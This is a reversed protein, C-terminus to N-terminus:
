LRLRRKAEECIRLVTRDVCEGHPQRITVVSENKAIEVSTNYRREHPQTDNHYRVDLIEREKWRATYVARDPLLLVPVVGPPARELFNELCAGFVVPMDRGAAVNTMRELVDFNGCDRKAGPPRPHCTWRDECDLAQFGYTQFRTTTTTKGAGPPGAIWLAFTARQLPACARSVSVHMNGLKPYPVQTPPHPSLRDIEAWFPDPACLDDGAARAAAAALVAAICSGPRIM